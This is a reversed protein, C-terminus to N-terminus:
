QITEYAKTSGKTLVDINYKATSIAEPIKNAFNSIIISSLGVIITKLGGAGDIFADLGSLMEAFGNNIDIFFDDDLLSQYLGEASARVRDSAAEWSEAYIEAQEDLAGTAETATKLNAIMSDSDGANWNDMLAVLQTYQRTGAVTQALAMQQDKSLKDWKDAMEDLITDM